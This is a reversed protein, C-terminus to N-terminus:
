ISSNFMMASVGSSSGRGDVLRTIVDTVSKEGDAARRALQDLAIGRLDPVLCRDSGDGIPQAASDM